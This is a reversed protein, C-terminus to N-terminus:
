TAPARAPVGAPRFWREPAGGLPPEPDRAALLGIGVRYKSLSVPEIGARRLHRDADEDGTASKTELVLHDGVLRVAGGGPRILEVEADCTVRENGSGAALTGREFRTILSPEFVPVEEVGLLETLHEHLFQRAASSIRGHDGPDVALAEKVTEDGALKAKIEFSCAGEDAYLRTRVKFRPRAGTVHDHFSRLGPTDFYVSEYVFARRGDIQLAQHDGLAAVLRELQEWVVLYKKDVRRQLAAREDLVALTVPPLAALTAGLRSVPEDGRRDRRRLAHSGEVRAPM